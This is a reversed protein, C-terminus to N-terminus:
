LNIVIKAQERIKKVYESFIEMKKRQELYSSIKGKVENLAVKKEPIKDLVQVIHYGYQTTIVPGIANKEQSFAATEFEKVMQGKKIYSLDGGAEKSPCDSNKMALDAFDGGNLLQKRLDEIKAKKQAKTKEDDEKKLTVLIHRVHVSAPQLFLKERNENYFKSIEQDTPKAKKSSEMDKLKEVKVALKIDENTLKNEKLIDEIKKGPPLSAKIGELAKKVEEDTVAIKRKEVENSLLTKMIFVEVLQKKLNEKLEKQKDAPVKDKIAKFKEEIDKNLDAKKMVKGDVSVAVDGPLAKEVPVEPATVQTKNEGVTTAEKKDSGSCGLILVTAFLVFIIKWSKSIKTNM